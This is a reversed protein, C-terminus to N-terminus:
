IELWIFQDETFMLDIGESTKQVKNLQKNACLSLYSYSQYLTGTAAASCWLLQELCSNGEFVINFRDFSINSCLRPLLQSQNHYISHFFSIVYFRVNMVYTYM